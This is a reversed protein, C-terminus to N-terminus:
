FAEPEVVEEQKGPDVNLGSQWVAEPTAFIM